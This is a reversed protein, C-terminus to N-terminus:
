KQIVGKRQLAEIRAVLGVATKRELEQLLDSAPIDNFATQVTFEVQRPLTPLASPDVSATPANRLQLNGFKLAEKQLESSLLRTESPNLFPSRQLVLMFDNVDNFSNALGNIEIKGVVPPTPPPAPQGPSPSPSPQQQLAQPDPALQRIRLIQVGPPIRDRFDQMVASWPKITNFVSALANTEDRVQTVEAQISEIQKKKAEIDGLQSDLAAQQQELEGNRAQLFLLLGGALAPLLIAALLGLILPQRSDSPVARMGRGRAAAGDPKYEPRDNLFNVDLSYM